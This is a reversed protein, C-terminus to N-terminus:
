NLLQHFYGPVTAHHNARRHMNPVALLLGRALRLHAYIRLSRSAVGRGTNVHLVGDCRQPLQGHQNGPVPGRSPEACYGGRQQHVAGKVCVARKWHMRLNHDYHASNHHILQGIRLSNHLGRHAEPSPGANQRQDASYVSPEGQTGSLGPHSCDSVRLHGLWARHPLPHRGLKPAYGPPLLLEQLGQLLRAAQTLLPQLSDGGSTYGLM